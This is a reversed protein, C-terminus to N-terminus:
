KKILSIFNLARRFLILTKEVNFITNSLVDEGFVYEDINRNRFSSRSGLHNKFLFLHELILTNKTVNKTNKLLSM